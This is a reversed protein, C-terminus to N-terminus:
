RQTGKELRLEEPSGVACVEMLSHAVQAAADQALTGALYLDTQPVQGSPFFAIYMPAAKKDPQSRWGLERLAADEEDSWPFDGGVHSGGVLEAYLVNGMRLFQAFLHVQDMRTRRGLLGAPREKTRPPGEVILFEDEALARLRAILDHEFSAWPDM